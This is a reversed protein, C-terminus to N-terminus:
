IASPIKVHSGHFGFQGNWVNDKSAWAEISFKNAVEIPAFRICYTTELYSRYIRCINHDENFETILNDNKPVINEDTMLITQLRKSRLSFGGNGVNYGDSYFNWVAGIYDYHLWDTDWARWNLVYGDHQIVLLYDTEIHAALQKIIFKSYESKSNLALQEDFLKVDGFEINECCKDAARKLRKFNMCDIGVLTVNTLGLPKFDDASDHPEGGTAHNLSSKVGIHQVVSPVVSIARGARICATHDWNGSPETLAPKIHAEYTNRHFCMNAGGVSRKINFGIGTEIVQHRETGDKNKTVCNFGTIIDYPFKNKLETIKELFDNRVIVDSDLNIVYTCNHFFCYEFGTRLAKKIGANEQKFVKVVTVDSIVFDNILAITETDSSHDDIIVIITDKPVSARKLSEFCERLYDSRNYTVIVIGIM